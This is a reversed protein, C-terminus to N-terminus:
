QVFSHQPLDAPVCCSGSDGRTDIPTKCGMYLQLARVCPVPEVCKQSHIPWRFQLRICSSCSFSGVVVEGIYAEAHM